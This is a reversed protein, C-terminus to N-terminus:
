CSRVFRLSGPFVWCGPKAWSVLQPENGLRCFQHPERPKWIATRLSFQFEERWDIKPALEKVATQRLSIEEPSAGDRIWGVLTETGLPTRTIGLLKFISSDTFMDLDTSVASLEAPIDVKQFRLGRALGQQM